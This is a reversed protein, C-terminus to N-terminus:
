IVRGPSLIGAPDLTAKLRRMLAMEEPARARPLIARKLRGVGHEAAFSGNMRAVIGHVLDNVEDWRALFAAKDAGVPQSINFHINGDGLHGFPVPRCGPVLAEVAPTAEALFAPVAGVPLSVDHKISGGEHIQVESMGHRLGWLARGQELSEALVADSAEGAELGDGLVTEMASRAREEDAGVIETLVYWPSVTPLPDRAGPLHTLAFELGGRCLIEFAVLDSGAAARARNLLAVAHAPSPVAVFAIARARPRPFLKLVAATIIGLTGETGIFLHKLDYGANDKKLKRLGPLIEGTPLVVELGLVLDRTNGYALVATGGANSSINGGIRCSGESALSLPFLRDVSEAATRVTDLIVGAEATLTNGAADVERIRNLRALSVLIERGSEDPTQGGVLGTNGSQPVIPTGTETALRCIAAVEETSGPRLVVPTRGHWRGRWETLYPAQADPDTLAQGPAVLASFRAILDPSPLPTDM